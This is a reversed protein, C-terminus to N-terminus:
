LRARNTGLACIGHKKAKDMEKEEADVFLVLVVRRITVWEDQM